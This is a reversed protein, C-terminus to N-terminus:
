TEKVGNDGAGRRPSIARTCPHLLLGAGRGAPREPRRTPAVAWPGLRQNCPGGPTRRPRGHCSRRDRRALARSPPTDRAHVRPDPARALRPAACSRASALPPRALTARRGAVLSARRPSSPTHTHTHTHTSSRGCLTMPARLGRGAGASAEGMRWSSCAGAGDAPRYALAYFTRHSSQQPSRRGEFRCALASVSRQPARAGQSGETGEALRLPGMDRLPRGETVATDRAPERGPVGARAAVANRGPKSRSRRLAKKPCM